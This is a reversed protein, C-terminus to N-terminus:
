WVVKAREEELKCYKVTSSGLNVKRNYNNWEMVNIM